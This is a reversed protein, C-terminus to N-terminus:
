FKKAYSAQLEFQDMELEISTAGGDFPNPGSVENSLAYM